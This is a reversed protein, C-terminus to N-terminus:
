EKDESDLELIENQKLNFYNYFKKTPSIRKTRGHKEAQIFGLELLTKIHEYAKNSRVKVITSQNVKKKHAIYALTQLVAKEMEPRAAEQVLETHDTLIDFKWLGNQEVLQIGAERTEYDQQLSQLVSKIHGVSGIGCLKALRKTEIGDPMCYLIAEIKSKIEKM